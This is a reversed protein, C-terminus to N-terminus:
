DRRKARSSLIWVLGLIASAVGVAVLVLWSYTNMFNSPNVVTNRDPNAPDYYVTMQVGATHDNGCQGSDSGSGKVKADDDGRSGAREPIFQYTFNCTYRTDCKSHGSGSCSSERDESAGPALTATGTETMHARADVGTHHVYLGFVIAVVAVVLAVIGNFRDKSRARAAMQESFDFNPPVPVEM